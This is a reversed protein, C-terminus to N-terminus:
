RARDRAQLLALVHRFLARAAGPPKGTDRERRAKAILRALEERDDAALEDAARDDEILRARWSEALKFLRAESSGETRARSLRAEIEELDASRLEGALTREARRRAIPSTVARARDVAERMEEDLGLRALASPALKMLERAVRASRDGAQRRQRRAVQRRSEEPQDDDGDRM